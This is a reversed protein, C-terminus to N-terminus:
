MAFGFDTADLDAVDVNELRITGVGHGTLDIVATTGDATISLSEFDTLGSILYLDICFIAVMLAHNEIKKSFANTLRTFRRMSMRLTLNSREAYSTSVKDLDPAGSVVIRDSGNIQGPSYRRHAAGETAGDSGYM